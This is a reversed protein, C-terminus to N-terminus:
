PKMLSIIEKMASYEPCTIKLISPEIISSFMALTIFFSIAAAIVSMFIVACGGESDLDCGDDTLWAVSARRFFKWVLYAMVIAAVLSVLSIVGIIPQAGVFMGFIREAAVGLQTVIANIVHAVESNIM